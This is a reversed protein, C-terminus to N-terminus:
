NKMEASVKAWKSGKKHFKANIKFSGDSLKFGLDASTSKFDAQGFEIYPTNAPIGSIGTIIVPKGFKQLKLTKLIKGNDLIYLQDAPNKGKFHSQIEPLDIAAQIIQTKDTTTQAHVTGFLVLSLVFAFALKKLVSINM